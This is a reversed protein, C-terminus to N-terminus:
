QARVRSGRYRTETFSRVEQARRHDDDAAPDEARRGGPRERVLTDVHEHELRAPDAPPHRALRARDDAAVVRVRLDHPHGHVRPLHVSPKREVELAVGDVVRGAPEEEDVLALRRLGHRVGLHLVPLAEVADVDLIELLNKGADVLGADGVRQELRLGPEDVRNRRGLRVDLGHAAQSALRALAGPDLRDLDLAPLDSANADAALKEGAVGDDEGRPRPREREAAGGADLQRELDRALLAHDEVDAGLAPM